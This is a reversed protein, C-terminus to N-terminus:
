ARKWGMVTEAIRAIHEPPTEPLVGHGLNFIFREPGLAALIRRTEDELADSGAMALLNDLNGQVVAHPKIAGAAWALPVGADLGVADVGTERVYDAYLAGAARPFGIVPVSPAHEKVRRVIAATPAIVWARFQSEALLGAWSDFIQVVEVGHDIQACLYRSVADVLRAILGNFTEPARWAMARVREGGTGGHGEIMYLALTWPAGAFGILATTPGMAAATGAIAAYVPELHADLRALDLRAIAAADRLPELRPGQGEVFVVRQGLADPIVLIDSFLIAADMRFRRLPQMAAEVCLAPTYCFTLFDPAERRLRRYEPLYRGAQRLFWFPPREPVAPSPDAFAGLLRKAPADVNVVSTKGNRGLAM